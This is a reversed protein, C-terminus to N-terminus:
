ARRAAVLAGGGAALAATGWALPSGGVAAVLLWGAVGLASGLQAATNLAGAAVGKLSGEVDTGEANAAVSSLGIGLGALAVAAPLLGDALRLALLTADGAAVACLGLAIVRPRALRALLPAAAAAGAVVCISFPLLRFGAAAATIGRVNQLYLTALTMASGTTATNLFSAGLATRLRRHRLAAAPLLPDGARREVAVGAAALAAAAAVALAGALRHGPRELLTGGLVLGMVTATLVVAGAVDLRVAARPPPAPATARVALVLLAAIPLNVWFVVRWGALDTLLGGLLFGSAGAAAGAASWAALARRREGEGPAAVGLLRLAAPVSAAAAAGQLSRAAVLVAVSPACAALVSAGAFGGLGLLLVRRHGHRDGLRAGLLLLAGFCVGYAAVVAAAASPRAGLGRLMAPLATIVVTVGLVDVFQVACLAALAVKSRGNGKKM